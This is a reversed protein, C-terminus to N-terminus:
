YITYMVFNSVDDPISDLEESTRIGTLPDVGYFTFLNSLAARLADKYSKGSALESAIAQKFDGANVTSGKGSGVARIEEGTKTNIIHFLVGSSDPLKQIKRELTSESRANIAKGIPNKKETDSKRYMNQIHPRSIKRRQSKPLIPKPQRAPAPAPTVKGTGKELKPTERRQTVPVEGKQVRAHGRSESRSLGRNYGRVLRQEYGTLSKYDQGALRAIDADSYKGAM